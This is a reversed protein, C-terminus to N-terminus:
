GRGGLLVEAIRDRLEAYSAVTLAPRAGNADAGGPNYWVSTMGIANAGAVDAELSDGVFWIGGPEVGLKAAAARFLVPHPKRLVYDATSMVFGFHRLLGHEDLLWRLREGSSSANSLIGCPIGRADLDALLAAIGPEPVTDLAAEVFAGDIEDPPADFSIGLPEYLLRQFDDIRVELLSAQQRPEIEANLEDTLRELEDVTVGRPNHALRLVAATGAARDFRVTRLVTGGMDFLVGKPLHM